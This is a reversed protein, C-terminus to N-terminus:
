PCLAGDPAPVVKPFDPWLHGSWNIKSPLANLTLLSSLWPAAAPRPFLDRV